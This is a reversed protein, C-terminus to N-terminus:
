CVRQSDANKAVGAAGPTAADCNQICIPSWGAAFRLQPLMRTLTCPHYLALSLIRHYAARYELEHVSAYLSQDDSLRYTSEANDM